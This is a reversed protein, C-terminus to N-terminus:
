GSDGSDKKAEPPADTAFKIDQLGASKAATLIVHHDGMPVSDEIDFIVPITADLEALENLKAVLKEYDASQRFEAADGQQFVEGGENVQVTTQDQKNRRIYVWVEPLLREQRAFESSQVSGGTMETAVLLEGMQGISACVFFILLLFVVDIMATMSKEGRLDERDRSNPIQM